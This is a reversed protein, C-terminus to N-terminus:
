YGRVGLDTSEDARVAVDAPQGDGSGDELVQQQITTLFVGVPHDGDTIRASESLDLFGLIRNMSHELITGPNLTFRSNWDM